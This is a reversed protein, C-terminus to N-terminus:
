QKSPWFVRNAMVSVVAMGASCVLLYLPFLGMGFQQGLFGCLTPTLMSSVSAVAMQSGIIAPSAETGFILPTMYNFNPFLPGNGFGTMFLGVSALPIGGPLLLALVGAALICQGTRVM